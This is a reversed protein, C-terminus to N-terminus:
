QLKFCTDDSINVKDGFDMQRHELLIDQQDWGIVFVLCNSLKLIGLHYARQLVTGWCLLM